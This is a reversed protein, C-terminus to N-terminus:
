MGLRGPFCGLSILWPSHRPPFSFWMVEANMDWPSVRLLYFMEIVTVLATFGSCISLLHLKQM